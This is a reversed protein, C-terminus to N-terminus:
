IFNFADAVRKVIIVLGFDNILKPLLIDIRSKYNDNQKDTQWSRDFYGKKLLIPPILNFNIAFEPRREMKMLSFILNKYILTILLYNKFLAALHSDSDGM